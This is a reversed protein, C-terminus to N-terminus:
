LLVKLAEELREMDEVSNYAQISVRLLERENWRVLPVEIRHEDWLHQGLKSM